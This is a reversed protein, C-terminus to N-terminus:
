ASTKEIYLQQVVVIIIAVFPTALVLGWGGSLVGMFLQAIIILAPPMNIMKKQIQPTVFSSEIIQVVIYLAAVLIATTTDVTLGILVAPIM